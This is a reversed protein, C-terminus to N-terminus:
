ALRLVACGVVGDPDATTVLAARGAAAPDGEASALLTAIQFAASAANTDGLLDTCSLRIPDHAGLVEALATSEQAGYPGPTGAPALAWVDEASLGARHLARRLCDALVPGTNKEDAPLAIEVAAVEALVPRGAAPDTGTELLLVACGEGTLAARSADGPDQEPRAHWELWAREASFEEVAGCVVSRAHGCRQLRQAHNLALLASARGGAITVNPGRLGHRIASQGAACNMVTNPFRAPDVLYPRDQTLSDRTFAMISSVSGNSTGLVLGTDEDLGPIRGGEGDDLLRGVAAVALGTVRDMSRTGKRGLLERPDAGPVLCARDVPAPWREPDLATVVPQRSRVGASFTERGIGFASVASWATIVPGSTNM